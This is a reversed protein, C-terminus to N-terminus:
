RGKVKPPMTPMLFDPLGDFSVILIEGQRPSRVGAGGDIVTVSYDKRWRAAEDRWNYKLGAPCVVLVRANDPLSVLTQITKGLGMEDGLLACEQRSLWDVGACQFNYLGAHRANQTQETVVVQRLSPDVDLKLQDAIELVRARDAMDLSVAWFADQHRCRCIKCEERNGHFRAGPFSRILNLNDPEYPTIVEGTKTLVRRVVPAAKPAIREPCCDPCWTAWGTATKTIFGEGIKVFKGCGPRTCTKAYKNVFPM